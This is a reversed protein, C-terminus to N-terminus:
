TICVKIQEETLEVKGEKLSAGESVYKNDLGSVFQEEEGCKEGGSEGCSRNDQQNTDGAKHDRHDQSQEQSSEHSAKEKDENRVRTDALNINRVGKSVDGEEASHYEEDSGCSAM